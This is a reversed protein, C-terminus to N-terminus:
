VHVGRSFLLGDGGVFTVGPLWVRRAIPEFGFAEHLAISARNQENVVYHCAAAGRRELWRLRDIVLRRGVGRRRVSPDVVLGALYWGTPCPVRDDPAQTAVEIHQVSGYGVVSGDVARAVFTTKGGPGNRRDWTREWRARAREFPLEEREATLRAVDDLLEEGLLSTRVALSGRRDASEDFEAFRPM